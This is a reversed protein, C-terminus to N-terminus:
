HNGMRAPPVAVIVSGAPEADTRSAGDAMEAALRERYRSPVAMRGKSDISLSSLGRFM